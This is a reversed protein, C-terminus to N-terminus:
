PLFKIERIGLGEIVVDITPPGSRSTSRYGVQGGGPLSVLTGPYSTGEVRQGGRSLQSFLYEAEAQGGQLLRIRSSTGPQGILQGGPRLLNTVTSAGNLAPPSRQLKQTPSSAPSQGPQPPTQKPGQLRGGRWPIEFVTEWCPADPPGTLRRGPVRGPRPSENEKDRLNIRVPARSPAPPARPPPKSGGATLVVDNPQREEDGEHATGIGRQGDLSAVALDGVRERPVRPTFCSALGVAMLVGAVVRPARM